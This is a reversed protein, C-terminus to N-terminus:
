IVMVASVRQFALKLYVNMQKELNRYIKKKTYINFLHEHRTQFINIQINGIYVYMKDPSITVTLPCLSLTPM